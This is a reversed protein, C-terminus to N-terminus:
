LHNPTNVVYISTASNM